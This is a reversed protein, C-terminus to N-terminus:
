SEELVVAMRYMSGGGAEAAPAVDRFQWKGAKLFELLPGKKALEPQTVDVMRTQDGHLHGPNGSVFGDVIMGGQIWLLATRM